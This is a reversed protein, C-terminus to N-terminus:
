IFILVKIEQLNQKKNFKCPHNIEPRSNTTEIQGMRITLEQGKFHNRSYKVHDNQYRIIKTSVLYMKLMTLAFKIEEVGKRTCGNKLKGIKAETMTSRNGSVIM